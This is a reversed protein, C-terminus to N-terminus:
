AALDLAVGHQEALAAGIAELTSASRWEGRGDKVELANFGDRRFDMGAWRFSIAWHYAATGDYGTSNDDCDYECLTFSPDWVDVMNCHGFIDGILTETNRRLADKAAKRHDAERAMQLARANAEKERAAQFAAIAQEIPTLTKKTTCDM